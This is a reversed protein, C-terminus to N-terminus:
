KCNQPGVKLMKKLTATKDAIVGSVKEGSMHAIQTLRPLAGSSEMSTLIMMRLAVMTYTMINLGSLFFANRPQTAQWKSSKAIMM